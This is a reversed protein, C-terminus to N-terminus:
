LTGLGNATIDVTIDYHALELPLIMINYTIIIGHVLFLSIQVLQGVTGFIIFKTGFIIFATGFYHIRYWFSSIQVM